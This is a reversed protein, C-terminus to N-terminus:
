HGEPRNADYPLFDAQRLVKLWALPLRGSYALEGVTRVQDLTAAPGHAARQEIPGMPQRSYSAVTFATIRAPPVPVRILSSLSVRGFGIISIPPLGIRQCMMFIYEACPTFSKM